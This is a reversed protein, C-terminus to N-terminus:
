DGIFGRDRMQSQFVFLGMGTRLRSFGLKKYFSEKGPSAYLIINFGPLQSLLRSVIEKGLGHGQCNPHIAIDYLAAQYAGDSIARGCGVLTNEDFAFVKFESQRFARERKEPSHNGMGVQLLLASLQQYDVKDADTVFSISM